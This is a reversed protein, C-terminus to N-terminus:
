LPILSPNAKKFAKGRVVLVSFVTPLDEGAADCREGGRTARSATGEEEGTGPPRRSCIRGISM